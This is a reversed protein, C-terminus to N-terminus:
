HIALKAQMCEAQLAQAVKHMTHNFAYNLATVHEDKSNWMNTKSGLARFKETHQGSAGAVDIDFAVVGNIRMQGYWTYARILRVNLNLADQVPQVSHQVTFGYSKLRDLGSDIWPEPASTPIPFEAGISEKSFRQDSIQVINIPCTTALVAPALDSVSADYTLPTIDAPEAGARAAGAALSLAAFLTAHFTNTM